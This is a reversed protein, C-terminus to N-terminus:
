IFECLFNNVVFNCLRKLSCCENQYNRWRIDNIFNSNWIQFSWVYKEIVLHNWILLNWSYLSIVIKSRCSENEHNKCGPDNSFKLNQLGFITQMILYNWISFNDVVFNCLKELGVVKIKTPKGHSITQFIRIKVKKLESMTKTPLIVQVRFTAL